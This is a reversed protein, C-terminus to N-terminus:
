NCGTAKGKGGYFFWNNGSILYPTTMSYCAADRVYTTDTGPADQFLQWATDSGYRPLARVWEMYAARLYDDAAPKGSGMDTTTAAPANDDYVEGYVRVNNAYLDIGPDDWTWNPIESCAVGQAADHCRPWYGIWEVNGGITTSLWWGAQYEYTEGSGYGPEDEGFHWLRYDGVVQQGNQVSVYNFQDMPAVINSYQVFGDYLGAYGGVWDGDSAYNNTTFYAFLTSHGSNLGSFEIKGAEVTQGGRGAYIQGINTDGSELQPADWINIYSHMGRYTSGSLKWETHYRSNADPSPKPILGQSPDDPVRDGMEALYAEVDFRIMPVTGDPGRNWPQAQLETQAFEEGDRLPPITEEPIPPAHLGPARPVWDVTSGSDTTTTAVVNLKARRDAFHQRIREQKALLRDALQQPSFDSTGLQFSAKGVSVEGPSSGCASAVVLSVLGGLSVRSVSCKM